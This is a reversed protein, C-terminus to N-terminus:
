HRRDSRVAPHSTGLAQELTQSIQGSALLTVAISPHILANEFRGSHRAARGINM